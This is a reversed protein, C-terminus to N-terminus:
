GSRPPATPPPSATPPATRTSRRARSCPSSRTATASPRRLPAGPRARRRGGVLRRRRSGRRLVQLARRPRPRAPPQVRHLRRPHRAGDGRRGPGAHVRGARLAQAALHMAVLSSSCATDVTIAPGELGLAYAVRGSVVSAIGTAPLGRSRPRRGGYDQYMVGAFVGTPSAACRPPTSAPTRWRRGPPNWCCASSPTWRWRRARPLDRLVRRRLRGADALFGGERAYSTGPHEPDPDYLRELDWGRDAPFEAIATAARPSWSALAGAPSAVGGPYRCAMGVIAIPEESAQARVAVQKARAARARRPWCTSPSRPRRQPLRLRRDGRLRLGTAASSATACSSRPSRTSASSRSPRARARGGAASAHGLVAAVEGRVLELVFRRASQRPCPPSSPPSRAPPPAAASPPARGPRQPDAAPRRGLGPRQLRPPTSRCRWRRHRSRRRARRRLAGPGARRLAGRHRARRM